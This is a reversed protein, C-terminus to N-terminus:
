ELRFTSSSSGFDRNFRRSTIRLPAITTPAAQVRGMIWLTVAGANAPLGGGEVLLQQVQWHRSSDPAVKELHKGPSGSTVVHLNSQSAHQVAPPPLGM